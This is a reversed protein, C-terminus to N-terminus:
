THPQGSSSKDREHQALREDAMGQDHAARRNTELLGNTAHVLQRLFYLVFILVLLMAMGYAIEVFITLSM